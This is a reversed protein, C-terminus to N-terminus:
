EGRKRYQREIDELVEGQTLQENNMARKEKKKVIENDDEFHLSDVSFLCNLKRDRFLIGVGVFGFFKPLVTKAQQM